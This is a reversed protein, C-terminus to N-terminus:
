LVDGSLFTPRECATIGSRMIQFCIESDWLLSTTYYIYQYKYTQFYYKGECLVCTSNLDCKEPFFTHRIPRSIHFTICPLLWNQSNHKTKSYSPFVIFVLSWGALLYVLDSVCVCVCVFLSLSHRYSKRNLLNLFDVVVAKLITGKQTSVCSCVISGIHLAIGCTMNQLATSSRRQKQKWMKWRCLIPVKSCQSSRQSSASTVPLSTQRTSHTSM